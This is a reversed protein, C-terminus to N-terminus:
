KLFAQMKLAQLNSELHHTDPTYNNTAIEVELVRAPKTATHVSKVENKDFL